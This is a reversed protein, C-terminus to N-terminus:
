SYNYRGSVMTLGSIDGYPLKEEPLKGQHWAVHLVGDVDLFVVVHPDPRGQRIGAMARYAAQLDEEQHAVGRSTQLQWNTSLNDM